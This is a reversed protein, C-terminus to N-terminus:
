RENFGVGRLIQPACKEVRSARTASQKAGSFHMIYARRRGPTLAEFAAKLAPDRDLRDRFEDPLKFESIKKYTVELGADEVEIANRVLARVAPALAAIERAHTFRVQRGAQTNEGPRVLVGKPDKLLAGKCFM